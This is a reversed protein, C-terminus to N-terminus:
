TYLKQFNMLNAYFVLKSVIYDCLKTKQVIQEHFSFSIMGKLITMKGETDNKPIQQLDGTGMQADEGSKQLQLLNTEENSLNLLM